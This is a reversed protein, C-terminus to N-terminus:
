AVGKFGHVGDVCVYIIVNTEPKPFVCIKVLDLVYINKLFKRFHVLARNSYYTYIITLDYKYEGCQVVKTESYRVESM